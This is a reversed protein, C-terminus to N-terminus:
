RVTLRLLLATECPISRPRGKFLPETRGIRMSMRPAAGLVGRPEGREERVRMRLVPNQAVIAFARAVDDVYLEGRLEVVRGINAVPAHPHLNHLMWFRREVSTLPFSKAPGSSSSMTGQSGRKAAQAPSLTQRRACHKGGGRLQTLTGGKRSPVHFDRKDRTEQEKSGQRREGFRRHRRRVGVRGTVEGHPGVSERAGVLGPLSGTFGHASDLHRLKGGGSHRANTEEFHELHGAVRGQRFTVTLQIEDKRDGQGADSGEADADRGDDLGEEAHVMVLLLGSERALDSREAATHRRRRRRRRM